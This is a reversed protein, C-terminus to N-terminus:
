FTFSGTLAFRDVEIEEFSVQFKHSSYKLGVVMQRTNEFNFRWKGEINLARDATLSIGDYTMYHGEFIYSETRNKYFESKLGVDLGALGSYGFPSGHSILGSTGVGAIIRSRWRPNKFIKKAYSVALLGEYYQPNHDLPDSAFTMVTMDFDALWGWKKGDDPSVYGIGLLLSSATFVGFTTQEYYLRSFGIDFSMSKIASTQKFQRAEPAFIYVKEKIIDGSENKAFFDIESIRSNLYAYVYYEGTDGSEKVPVNKGVYLKWGPKKYVPLLKVLPRFSEGHPLLFVPIQISKFDLEVIKKDQPKQRLIHAVWIAQQSALVKKQLKPDLANSEAWTATFTGLILVLLCVGEFLGINFIRNSNQGM